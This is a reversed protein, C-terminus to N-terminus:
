ALPGHVFWGGAMEGGLAEFLWLRRGEATEVRWYDRPGSRWEPDDLWWEPAIREPGEAFACVHDARRWRFVAPPRGPALVAAPEPRWLLPPRPAPPAPWGPPQPESWAAPVVLATKEPLHSEAAHFRTLRDLGIRAGIRGLLEAFGDGGGPDLRAAAEAAAAAHGAHQRAALPEALAAELRVADVGHGPDLRELARELIRGIVAPDRSPRALGVEEWQGGGDARRIAARLRRAGMGQAELRACLAQTVREFAAAIDPALGIPDPLTLRASLPARQPAPSIPEPALGMAQDLRLVLDAGFRRALAARSMSSLDGICGLGLRALAQATDPPIRLAAVPLAALAARPADPPAIALALPRPAPVPAAPAAPRPPRAPAEALGAPASVDGGAGGRRAEAGRAQAGPAPAGAGIRAAGAGGAGGGGGGARALPNRRPTRSRTAHADAAVDDGSRGSPARIGEGAAAGAAYRALGWAAGRTDAIGIRASLGMGELTELMRRAMREEGGFLHACGSIDLALAADGSPIQAAERGAAEAGSAGSAGAAVRAAAGGGARRGARRARGAAQAAEAARRGGGAGMGRGGPPAGAELAAWPTWRGAWRLLGARARAEEDPRWPLSRLGPLIARADGLSMGPALGEAAAQADPCLLTPVGRIEATVAFPTPDPDRRALRDAAFRPLWLSLIRRARAPSM